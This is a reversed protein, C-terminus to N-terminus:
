CDRLSTTVSETALALGCLQLEGGWNVRLYLGLVSDMFLVREMKVLEVMSVGDGLGM